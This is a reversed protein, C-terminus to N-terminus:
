AARAEGHMESDDRRRNWAVNMWEPGQSAFQGRAAVAYRDKLHLVDFIADTSFPKLENGDPLEIM